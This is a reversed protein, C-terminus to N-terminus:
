ETRLAVLPEIRQARRAPFWAAALAIGALLVVVVSLTLPDHADVEYLFARVLRGFM